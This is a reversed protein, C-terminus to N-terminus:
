RVGFYAKLADKWAPPTELSDVEGQGVWRVEAIEEEQLVFGAEPNKLMCRYIVFFRPIGSKPVFSFTFLPTSIEIDDIGLEEKLERQLGAAPFEGAQLRGGPFDWGSEGVGRCMLVKGDRAILAKQGVEGLFNKSEM